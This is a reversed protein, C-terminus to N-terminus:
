IFLSLFKQSIPDSMPLHEYEGAIVDDCLYFKERVLDKGSFELVSLFDKNLIGISYVTDSALFAEESAFSAITVDRLHEMLYASFAHVYAEDNDCIVISRKTM